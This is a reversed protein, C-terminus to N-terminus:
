KLLQNSDQTNPHAIKGDDKKDIESIEEDESELNSENM